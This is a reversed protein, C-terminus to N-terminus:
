NCANVACRDGRTVEQTRPLLIIRPPVQVIVTVVRHMRGAANVVLCSYM